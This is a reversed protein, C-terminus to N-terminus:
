GCRTERRRSSSERKAQEAIDAGVKSWVARLTRQKPDGAILAEYMRKYNSETIFGDMKVYLQKYGNGVRRREPTSFAQDFDEFFMKRLLAKYDKKEQGEEMKSRRRTSRKFMESDWYLLTLYANPERREIREWLDHDVEAIQRLGAISEAAFYNCMRLGHKSTGIRYLDMYAEPFDLDHEKIYQWVDKDSWDYIPFVKYSGGTQGGDMRANAIYKLRQISEAARVGVLQVGDRFVKSCFAQYNMEGARTITPHSRIAFSPPDRCWVSEKGPEWTIWSEENQLQRLISVQKFPLCFWNFTAGVKTFRERWRLTMAEMSPYLAEEDIFNVALQKADIKGGLILTYTMHAMCLSDKGASFSLYVKVGNDFANLIRQRCAEVVDLSGTLRKVPM